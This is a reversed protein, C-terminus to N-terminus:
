FQQEDGHMEEFPVGCLSDSSAHAGAGAWALRGLVCRDWWCENFNPLLHQFTLEMLEFGISLAWLMVHNRIMVAQRASANRSLGEQQREWARPGTVCAVALAAGDMCRQCTRESGPLGCKRTCWLVTERVRVEFCRGKSCINYTRRRTDDAHMIAECVGLCPIRLVGARPGAMVARGVKAWWGLTHAVVFEDFVTARIVPWNVGRGPVWLRCDM